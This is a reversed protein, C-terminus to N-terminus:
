IGPFMGQAKEGILPIPKCQEKIAAVLGIIWLVFFVLSALSLVTYIIAPLFSGLIMIIVNWAIACIFLLLSQKLHYSGLTTKKDKHMAFYAVLWGFITIYSLIAVTKGNNENSM